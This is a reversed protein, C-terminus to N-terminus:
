RGARLLVVLLYAGARAAVFAAADESTVELVLGDVEAELVRADLAVNVVGATRDAARSGLVDVRDGAVLRPPVAALWAHPVRLAASSPALARALSPPSSAVPSERPAFLAALALVVAAAAAALRWRPLRGIIGVTVSPLLSM